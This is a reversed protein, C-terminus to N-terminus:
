CKDQWLLWCVQQLIQKALITAINSDAKILTVSLNIITVAHQLAAQNLAAVGVVVRYNWLIIRVLYTNITKSQQCSQTTNLWKGVIRAIQNTEM